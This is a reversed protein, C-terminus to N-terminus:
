VEYILLHSRGHYLQRHLIKHRGARRLIEDIPLPKHLHTDEPDPELLNVAVIRGRSEMEDLFAMPDPVHEIVDFSYVADFGGPVSKEVDYIAAESGRRDLRWRLYATSPNSFDAFAVDYGLDLFRLGDSGIGCGYDLLRAGPTLFRRLAKRYPTKTGSMAFVTLDYLYGSSTRYFTAEDPASEEEEDLLQRHRHLADEDYSSGLYEKLEALDAEANWVELFSDAVQQFYWTDTHRVVRAKLSGPWPLPELSKWFRAEDPANQVARFKKAFFPEFWPHKAAMAREGTAVGAFRRRMGELDYSHLHRTLAAPEYRLVLGAQGLRWGIDMDEYYYHFGADFGGVTSYLSRKLSVNCSYFRFWGADDGAALGGFDFQLSSRDMWRHLGRGSARRHWQVTGMVGVSPDPEANHRDLHKEVLRSDPVMDDGLFLVLPRDTLAVGSNRAAGPGGRPVPAVRAGPLDPRDQDEGDLVVVLEFGPASQNNLADVTERLIEPRGRTPIVVTLDEARLTM